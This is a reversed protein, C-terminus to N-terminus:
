EIPTVYEFGLNSGVNDLRNPSFIFWTSWEPVLEKALMKCCFAERFRLWLALIIIWNVVLREEFLLKPTKDISMTLLTVQKM